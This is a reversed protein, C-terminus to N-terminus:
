ASKYQFYTQHFHCTHYVNAKEDLGATVLKCRQLLWIVDYRMHREEFDTEGKIVEHLATTCQDWILSYLSMKNKSLTARREMYEEVETKRIWKLVESKAETPPTLDPPVDAEIDKKPDIFKDIIPVMDHTFKYNQSVYNKLDETFTIYLVKREYRESKLALISDLKKERDM